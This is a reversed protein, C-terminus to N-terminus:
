EGGGNAAIQARDCAEIVDANTHDGHACVYADTGPAPGRREARRPATPPTASLDGEAEEAAKQAESAAQIAAAAESAAAAEMASDTAAQNASLEAATDLDFDIRILKWRFLDRRELILSVQNKPDDADVLKVRFHDLDVYSTAASVKGAQSPAAGGVPAGNPVSATTIMHVVADPTVYRDVLRGVLAPAVLSGVAALAEGGSSSDGGASKMLKTSLEGKLNARLVPFDVLQDLRSRDGTRAASKLADMAVFPSAFYYGVVAAAAIVFIAILLGILGGSGGGRAPQPPYAAGQGLVTGSGGTQGGGDSM